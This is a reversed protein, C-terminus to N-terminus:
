DVGALRPQSQKAGLYQESEEMAKRWNSGAHGLYGAWVRHRLSTPLAMWHPRCFAMERPIQRSCGPAPCTHKTETM